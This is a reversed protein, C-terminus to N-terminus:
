KVKLTFSLTSVTLAAFKLLITQNGATPSSPINTSEGTPETLFDFCIAIDIYLPFYFVYIYQINKEWYLAFSYRYSSFFDTFM